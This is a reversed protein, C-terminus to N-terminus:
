EYEGGETDALGVGIEQWFWLLKSPSPKPTHIIFPIIQPVQAFM